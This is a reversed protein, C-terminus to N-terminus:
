ISATKAIGTAVPYQQISGSSKAKLELYSGVGFVLICVAVGLLAFYLKKINM